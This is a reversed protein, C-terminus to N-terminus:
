AVRVVIIFILIIIIAFRKCIKSLNESQKERFSTVIFQLSSFFFQQGSRERYFLLFLCSMFSM